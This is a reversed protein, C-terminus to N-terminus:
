HTAPTWTVGHGQRRKLELLLDKKLWFAFDRESVYRGHVASYIPRYKSGDKNRVELYRQDLKSYLISGGDLLIEITERLLWFDRALAERLDAQAPDDLCMHLPHFFMWTSPADKVRRYVPVILVNRILSFLQSDEFEQGRLLDDIVPRLQHVYVTQKPRDEKTFETTKLEGNSFDRGRKGPPLGLLQELLKGAIGKDRLNVKCGALEPIDSLWRLQYGELREKAEELTM